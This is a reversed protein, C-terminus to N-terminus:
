EEWEWDGSLVKKNEERRERRAKREALKRKIAKMEPTLKKMRGLLTMTDEELKESAGEIKEADDPNDKSNLMSKIVAPLTLNPIKGKLGLRRAEAAVKEADNQNDRADRKVSELVKKRAAMMAAKAKQATQRARGSKSSKPTIGSLFHEEAKRAAEAAAAAKMDENEETSLTEVRTKREKGDSGTAGGLAIDYMDQEDYM